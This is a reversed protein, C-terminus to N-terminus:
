HPKGNYIFFQRQWREQVLPKWLWLGRGVFVEMRFILTADGELPELQWIQASPIWKHRNYWGIKQFEEWICITEITEVEGFPFGLTRRRLFQAQPSLEEYQAQLMQLHERSWLPWSKPRILWQWIQAAPFNAKRVTTLLLESRPQGAVGLIERCEQVFCNLAVEPNRGNVLATFIAM